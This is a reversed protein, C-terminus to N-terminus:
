RWPSSRRQRLANQPQGSLEPVRVSRPPGPLRHHSDSTGSFATPSEARAPASVAAAPPVTHEPESGVVSAADVLGVVSAADVLARPEIPLPATSSVIGGIGVTRVSDLLGRGPSEPLSLVVRIVIIGIFGLSAVVALARYKRDDVKFKSPATAKPSPLDRGALCAGRRLFRAQWPAVAAVAAVPTGEDRVRRCAIAIQAVLVPDLPRLWDPPDCARATSAVASPAASEESTVVKLSGAMWIDGAVVAAGPDHPGTQREVDKESSVKELGAILPRADEDHPDTAM